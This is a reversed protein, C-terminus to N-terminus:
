QHAAAILLRLLEGVPHPREPMTDLRSDNWSVVLDLEPIVAMGRKGNRHGLCAFAGAPVGPWRRTGERTIGNVWWLWSYSGEHDTQDDPITKSGITRQGPLMAAPQAQTRPLALPLPETVARRAHARSLLQRGNWRGERLYLLGFRAFDRPSVALRGARDGPGFAMLTPRDECQLPGTLRERLVTEDVTEYTAGYVKLFLLDWFLAMQYDNYDYAAGPAEGVGYGSTQTALHRFTIGRDKYGRDPNLAALGPEVEVARADLGSLLGEEVAKFLFHAYWPKAASAVDGRAAADGWTHVLYGGRVVCGRGGAFRTMAELREPDLGAEAPSRTSWSVGPYVRAAPATPRAQPGAPVVAARLAEGCVLLAAALFPVPM